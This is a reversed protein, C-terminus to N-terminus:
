LHATMFFSEILMTSNHSTWIYISVKIDRKDEYNEEITTNVSDTMLSTILAVCCRDFGGGIQCAGYISVVVGTLM